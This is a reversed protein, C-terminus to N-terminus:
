LQKYRKLIDGIIDSLNKMSAEPNVLCYRFKDNIIQLLESRKQIANFVFEYPRDKMSKIHILYGGYAESCGNALIYAKYWEPLSMKNESEFDEFEKQKELVMKLSEPGYDYDSWKGTNRDRRKGICKDSTLIQMAEDNRLLGLLSHAKIQQDGLEEADQLALDYKGLMM